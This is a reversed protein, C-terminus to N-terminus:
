PHIQNNYFSNLFNYYARKAEEYAELAEEVEGNPRGRKIAMAVAYSLKNNAMIMQLQLMSEAKRAKQHQERADEAAKSKQQFLYLFVGTILTPVMGIVLTALESM